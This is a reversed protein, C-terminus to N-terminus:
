IRVVRNKPEFKKTDLPRHKKFFRRLADADMIESKSTVRKDFVDPYGDGGKANFDTLSIEYSKGSEIPQFAKGDWIKASVISNAKVDYRIDFGNTQAFAGDGPSKALVKKLYDMLEDGKFRYVGYKLGWPHLSLVDGFRVTGKPLGARLVGSCIIAANTKTADTMVSTVLQGLPSEMKRNINRDSTFSGTTTGVTESMVKDAKDRWPKLLSLMGAHEDIKKPLKVVGTPEQYNVSELRFGQFQTRGNRVVLDVRGVFKGWEYAQVIATGNQKDVTLCCDQSHGGVILDIGTVQRALTVDGPALSGHSEDKYHGMHTLAIIADVDKRLIPVLKKAEEVPSRVELNKPFRLSKIPTDDTTLGIVAIKKGAITFIKYPEFPRKDSGKEYINASLFPFNASKKQKLLIEFEPDFEHNGITMADYKLLNMGLFDPEAFVMDSEPTGSNVDGGDLLLLHGGSKAVEARISEVLTMRAAMGWEGKDSKWFHGHHDNTHLITLHVGDNAFLSDSVSTSRQTCSFVFFSSVLVTWLNKM